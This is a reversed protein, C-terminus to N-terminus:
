CSDGGARFALPDEDDLVFGVDPSNQLEKEGLLSKLYFDSVLRGWCDVDRPAHSCSFFRDPLAVKTSIIWQDREGDLAFGTSVPPFRHFGCPKKNQPTM